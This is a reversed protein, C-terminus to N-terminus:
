FLFSGSYCLSAVGVVLSVVGGSLAVKPNMKTKNRPLNYTRFLAGCAVLSVIGLIAIWGPM